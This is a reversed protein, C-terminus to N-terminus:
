AAGRLDEPMLDDITLDLGERKALDLVESWRDLPIRNREFWGQVTTHSTHGLKRAVKRIGGLDTIATQHDM